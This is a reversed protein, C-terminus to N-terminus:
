DDLEPIYEIDEFVSEPVGGGDGVWDSTNTLTYESLAAGNIFSNVNNSVTDSTIVIRKSKDISKLMFDINSKTLTEFVEETVIYYNM